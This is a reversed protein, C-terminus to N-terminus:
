RWQCHEIGDNRDLSFYAKNRYTRLKYAAELLKFSDLMEAVELPVDIFRDSTYIPYYDRLNITKM